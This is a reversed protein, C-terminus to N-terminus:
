MSCSRPDASSTAALAEALGPLPDGNEDYLPSSSETLGLKNDFVPDLLLAAQARLALERATLRGAVTSSTDILTESLPTHISAVVISHDRVNVERRINTPTESLQVFRVRRPDSWATLCSSTRGSDSLLAPDANVVSDSIHLDEALYVTLTADPELVIASDEIRVDDRVVLEVDGKIRVVADEILLGQGSIHALDIFVPGDDGDFTFEADTLEIREAYRASPITANFNLTMPLPLGAFASVLGSLSAPREATTTWVEVPLSRARVAHASIEAELSSTVDPSFFVQGANDLAGAPADFDSSGDFGLGIKGRDGARVSPSLRWVALRADSDMDVRHTAFVGFEGLEPDLAEEYGADPRVELVRQAVTEVGDVTALITMVVQRDDEDVPGGELDTVAVDIEAGMYNLNEIMLGANAASRWDADTEMVAEILDSASRASWESTVRREAMVGIDPSNERSILFSTTLVTATALTVMVLLLAIGRDRTAPGFTTRTATM